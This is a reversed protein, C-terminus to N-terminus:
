FLHACKYWMAPIIHPAILNRFKDQSGTRRYLKLYNGKGQFSTELQFCEWLTRQMELRGSAGWCSVDFVCGRKSNEEAGGDDMFLVVLAEATWRLRCSELQPFVKRERAGPQQKKYLLEREAHWLTRTNFRLSRTWKRTRKDFRHVFPPASTATLM